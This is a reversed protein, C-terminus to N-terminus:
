EGKGFSFGPTLKEEKNTSLPNKYEDPVPVGWQGFLDNMHKEREEYFSNYTREIVDEYIKKNQNLQSETLALGVVTGIVSIGGVGISIAGLTKETKSLKYKAASGVGTGIRLSNARGLSSSSGLSSARSSISATRARAGVMANAQVGGGGALNIIVPSAMCIVVSKALKKKINRGTM